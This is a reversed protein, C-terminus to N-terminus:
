RVHFSAEVSSTADGSQGGGCFLTYKGTLLVKSGDEAVTKVSEATIMLIVTKEEGPGLHAWSFGVLRPLPMTSSASPTLYFEAVEDGGSSSVNKINVKATLAGDTALWESSLKIDRYDFRSYSLGFGFGVDPKGQFLSLKTIALRHFSIWM